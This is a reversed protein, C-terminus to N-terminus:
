LAPIFYVKVHDHSYMYQPTKWSYYKERGEVSVGGERGKERGCESRGKEREKERGGKRM